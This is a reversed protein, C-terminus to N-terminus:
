IKKLENQLALMGCAAHIKKGPSGRFFVLLGEKRLQNQFDLIETQTPPRWNNFNTNLPILNFKCRHIFKAIKVLEKIHKKTMNLDPILIYEFTINKKFHKTYEKCINLLDKLPYQITIDMIEKREEEFPSNLSIALNFPQKEKIFREIEPIVGSTSITIHRAGIHLGNPDNLIKAAQIVNDYNYFPEGMGMFVINTLKDQYKQKRYLIMQYIQDLIQWTKLNGRFPIKGTACFSCNLSCGSQSSICATRRKESVIWVSEFVRYLSNKEPKHEFLFKETGKDNYNSDDSESLHEISQIELKPFLQNEFIFDRIKKPLEFFEEIRSALHKHIRIFTQKARYKPENLEFFFKELEEISLEQLAKKM